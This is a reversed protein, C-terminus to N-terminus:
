EKPNVLGLAREMAENLRNYQHIVDGGFLYGTSVFRCVGAGVAAEMHEPAVGGDIEIPLLPDLAMLERVKELASPILEQGSKGAKVTMVLVSDLDELPVPITSVPTDIDLAVGVEGYQQGKAVFAVPDGMMEIHGLFRQFGARGFADVYSEPDKVMLHVELIRQSAYSTFPMPDMWTVSPVYVGDMVDIHVAHAFSEVQKLKEEIGEWTSENIGPIIYHHRKNPIRKKM